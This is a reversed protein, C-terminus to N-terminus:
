PRPPVAGEVLWAVAADMLASTTPVYTVAVDAATLALEIETCGAIIAEAGDAVLAAAADRMTRRCADTVEGHVLEDYIHAHIRQRSAEEPVRVDLDHAALRDRVGPEEMTFRTGLLGVATADGGHCAAATADAVHLLPIAVAAEIAPTVRHMTNTLLVLAGAGAAELRAAAGALLAGAADWDGAAQLDGVREFDASWLLLEPTARGGRAANVRQNLLRYAAETSPWAMGGLLGLVRERGTM